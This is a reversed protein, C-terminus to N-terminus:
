WPRDIDSDGMTLLWADPREVYDAIEKPASQPGVMLYRTAPRRLFGFRRAYRELRRDVVPFFLGAIERNHCERRAAEFVAWVAKPDTPDVVLDVLFCRRYHYVDDPEVIKLVFTGLLKEHSWCDRRLFTQGPQAVYKWNLYSSNRVVACTYHQSVSEWLMDHKVGYETVETVSTLKVRERMALRSAASSLRLAMAGCRALALNSLKQKLIPTPRIPLMFIKLPTVVRWGLQRLMGRMEATQGLSLSFPWDQESAALLRVGYASSRHDPLVMTDVLWPVEVATDHVKLQVLIGGMFAVWEDGECFTWYQPKRRFRRASQIFMWQWQPWIWDERRNPWAKRTFELVRRRLVEQGGPTIDAYSGTVSSDPEVQCEMVKQCSPHAPSTSPSEQPSQTKKVLKALHEALGNLHGFEFIAPSLAVGLRRRLRTVFEVALLSDLGLHGFPKNPPIAEGNSLGLTAALETHLVKMLDDASHTASDEPRGAAPLEVVTEEVRSFIALRRRAAIVSLFKAWEVDVVAAHGVNMGLLADLAEIARDPELPRNGIRRFQELTVETAMGGGAWPGWQVSLARAGRSRRVAVLGDLFANAAAYMARGSAGWAAAASSYCVFADLDDDQTAADLWYAGDAKARMVEDINKRTVALISITQDIGAAHIVGRLPLGVSRAEQVIREVEARQTVDARVLTAKVGLCRWKELQEKVLREDGGRRSVLVLSAVGGDVLWQSVKLGLAGTGGTVIWTGDTRLCTAKREPCQMRVFRPVWRITGRWAAQDEGDNERIMAAWQCALPGWTQPDAEVDIIGGWRDPLELAATRAFGWFPAHWLNTPEQGVDWPVSVANRTLLWVKADKGSQSSPLSALAHVLPLVNESFHETPTCGAASPSTCPMGLPAYIVYDIKAGINRWLEEWAARDDWPLQWTDETIRALRDGPHVHLPVGHSRLLAQSLATLPSDSQGQHVLLWVDKAKKGNDASIIPAQQWQIDYILQSVSPTSGGHSIEPRKQSIPRHLDHEAVSEELWYRQRRFPMQPVRVLSRRYPEDVAKFDIPVGHVFLLGLSDMLSQWEPIDARLSAVTVAKPCCTRAFTSLIPQPGIELFLESGSAELTQLVQTFRVAHRAQDVWYRPQCVDTASIRGTVGNVVNVTPTAFQLSRAVSELDALIPDILPSHFAHSVSLRKCRVGLSRLLEALRDVAKEDGSIVTQDTSNIAAVSLRDPCEAVYKSLLSEDACVAMMAGGSPLSQMLRGRAAVLKLADELSLGGAFCMAAIEGVSHGAVWQPTIGWSRYLEALAIQLVFLAPQTFQTQDLLEAERSGKAAFMVELLPRPLRHELESACRDVISRFTSHTEYLQKGMGAWQSGQGTFLFAIKPASAVDHVTGRMIEPVSQREAFRELLSAAEEKTHATIALREELPARRSNVSYCADALSVQKEDRLWQAVRRAWDALHANTRASLCLLYHSRDKQQAPLRHPLRPPEAVIIHVNAGGVGFSSVAARRVAVDAASDASNSRLGLPEWPELRTQVHFPLRDFPIQPNARASTITPLLQGHKMQLLVKILGLVGAGAELHGINPKIAGLACKWGPPHGNRQVAEVYAMELGRVEIPDGLGTGTGHTEIYSITHPPVKAAELAKRIAEAQAAPHPATFGVTGTGHSLGTGKIVGYIPDGRRLADDLRRLVVVGAGEGLVTGDAEAGFPRCRGTPSLIGLRGLQAFRNPDLILNVGGVVAAKCDGALLARCALHIATGSSSCATDVAFSPGSFGLIQSLRNALAFGEWCRYPARQCDSLRNAHFVYDGYMVGVFVGTEKRDPAAALGADEIAHWAVELFLRMQPDLFVAERPSIGFWQADFQDVETLLAAFHAREDQWPALFGQRQPPVKRVATRGDRLLQWLEEVNDAGACRVAMGVVAVDSTSQPCEQDSTSKGQATLQVAISASRRREIYDVIQSVRQHEFLLTTPLDPFRELLNATIEVVKFSDCGLEDLRDVRAVEEASTSLATAFISLITQRVSERAFDKDPESSKALTGRVRETIQGISALHTVIEEIEKERKRVSEAEVGSQGTTPSPEAEELVDTTDSNPDFAVNRLNATQSKWSLFSDGRTLEDKPAIRELFRVAPLNRKTFDVRLSVTSCGLREAEVGLHNVMQYEVGRGLVRCSLLFTDAFLDSGQLHGILLGVLGYDGMRDSVRVTWCGYQPDAVLQRLEAETRRRTTFNFQNTRQTLQAARALDTPAIPQIDIKVELKKIFDALSLSTQRLQQRAFEQRYMEVRKRDEESASSADWEWVHDLFRDAEDAQTPWQLVLVEPCAARVEACEVPNDDLFVFSDLGLNLTKALTRLNESKPQWNIMAAVIHERRLMMEKRTQFVSWVDEEVNKSCLCILMGQESCRALLQQLRQHVPLIEVNEPGVEGVVGNWLTNDCDVVIVKNLRRWRKHAHRVILTGLYHYYFPKYPIHGLDDRVRDYAEEFPVRYRLHFQAADLVEINPVVSLKEVLTREAQEVHTNWAADRRLSPCVVVIPRGKSRAAFTTIAQTLEDLREGFYQRLFQGDGLREEPLERLWDAVRVLLVPVTAHSLASAPSLIEQIVQGYPGYDVELDTDFFNEWFRFVEEFPQLTFTGVLALRHKPRPRRAVDPERKVTATAAQCPQAAELAAAVGKPSVLSRESFERLIHYEGPKWKEILSQVITIAATATPLAGLIHTPSDNWSTILKPPRPVLCFLEPYDRVTSRLLGEMAQKVTVYHAWGPPPGEVASSSIGIIAGRNNRLSPLCSQLPNRVLTLNTIVYDDFPTDAAQSDLVAPPQCANLVLIDTAGYRRTVEDALHSCFTRDGLDGALVDLSAHYQRLQNTLHQTEPSDVRRCVSIVRCGSLALAAALDAGLGRGGGCVVATKGRLPEGLTKLAAAIRSVDPLIPSVRVYSSLDGEALLKGSISYVELKLDIMRLQPEVRTVRACYQVPADHNTEPSAAWASKFFTMRLKTFVSRLGPCEMGILYSCLALIKTAVKSLPFGNAAVFRDTRTNYTGWITLGVALEEFARDVPHERPQCVAYEAVATRQIKRTQSDTTDAAPPLAIIRILLREGSYVEIRRNEQDSVVTCHYCEGPYIAGRFEVDLRGIPKGFDHWNQLCELVACIGHAIPKTFFTAPTVDPFVYLPNRDSSWEAFEAIRKPPITLSNVTCREM